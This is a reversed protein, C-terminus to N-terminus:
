RGSGSEEPSSDSDTSSDGSDPPSTSSPSQPVTPHGAVQELLWSTLDQLDGITVPNDRRDLLQRWRDIAGGAPDIIGEAFRTLRLTSAVDNDEIFDRLVAFPVDELLLFTEGGIKFTREHEGVISHRQARLEDFDKM